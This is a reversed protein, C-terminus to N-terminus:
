KECSYAKKKKKKPLNWEREGTERSLRASANKDM